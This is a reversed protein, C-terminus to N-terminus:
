HLRASALEAGVLSLAVDFDLAVAVALAVAL